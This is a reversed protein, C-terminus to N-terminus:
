YETTLKWNDTRFPAVPLGESNFLNIDPNNGWGYRIAVPDKIEDNWVEIKNDKLYAKAWRFIKDNGAISFGEIYGYKNSVRLESGYTNFSLVFKNGNKEMAKFTPGSYINDKGYSQNLAVLALRRGVEKKNLPHIDYSDGVDIIVAQGTKPLSLTLTQAERLEAWQSEAPSKDKGMCNVLQVWYFPFEYGWKNRWDNILAPFVTRYAYAEDVNSEGQYWIAGRIRFSILPNIMSNYALSNLSNPGINIKHFDENIISTNYKWIGSLPYQMNETDHIELMLDDAQSTFGGPGMDDTVRVAMINSGAKLVGEPINYVRNQTSGTTRGVERSNIWTIDNDDIKGLHLTAQKGAANEPLIIEFRFWVMGDVSALSTTSWEQPIKMEHWTSVNASKDYWKEIMGRDNAIFEKFGDIGDSHKKVYDRISKTLEPNDKTRVEPILSNYSPESMWTQIITGGWSSNIIGVPIGTQTYIDRAYYYAVASFDGATEPSCIEWKADVDTHPIIDINAPINLSRILPYDAKKIEELANNTNLLPWEMNSQGSCLWVDGILINKYEVSNKKGKVVLNYPGGFAMPRLTVQWEGNRSATTTLKQGNFAVEIRENKDAWGWVKVPEDRQIVMNDGFVGAVIVEAKLLSSASYFLVFLSILFKIKM